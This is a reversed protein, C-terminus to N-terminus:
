NSKFHDPNNPDELKRRAIEEFEAEKGLARMTKFLEFDSQKQQRYVLYSEYDPVGTMDMVKWMQRQWVYTAAVSEPSSGGKKHIVESVNSFMKMMTDWRAAQGGYEAVGRARIEDLGGRGQTLLVVALVAVSVAVNRTFRGEVIQRVLAGCVFSVLTILVPSTPSFMSLTAFTAEPSLSVAQYSLLGAWLLALPVTIKASRLSTTVLGLALAPDVFVALVAFAGHIFAGDKGFKALYRDFAQRFM